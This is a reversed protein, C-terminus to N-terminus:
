PPQPTRTPACAQARIPLPPRIRSPNATFTSPAPPNGDCACCQPSCAGAPGAWGPDGSTM